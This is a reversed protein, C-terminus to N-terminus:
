FDHIIIVIFCKLLIIIHFSVYEYLINNLLILVANKTANTTEKTPSLYKLVLLPKIMKPKWSTNVM